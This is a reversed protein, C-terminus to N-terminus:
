FDYWRLSKEHQVPSTRRENRMPKNKRNDTYPAAHKKRPADSWQQQEKLAHNDHRKAENNKSHTFNRKRGHKGYGGKTGND